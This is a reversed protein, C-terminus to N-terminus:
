SVEELARLRARAALVLAIASRFRGPADAARLSEGDRRAQNGEWSM